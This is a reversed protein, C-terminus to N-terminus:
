RIELWLGIAPDVVGGVVAMAVRQNVTRRTDSLAEIALGTDKKGSVGELESNHLSERNLDEETTPVGPMGM